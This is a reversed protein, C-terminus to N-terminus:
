MGKMLTWLRTFQAVMDDNPIIEIEVDGLNFRIDVRKATSRYLEFRKGEDSIVSKEVALLGLELLDRVRRYTSSIPIRYSASLDSVPMAKQITASLIKRSYEDALATLVKGRSEEDTVLM